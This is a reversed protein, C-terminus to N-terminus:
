RWVVGGDRHPVSRWERTAQTAGRRREAGHLLAGAQTMKRKLSHADVGIHAKMRCCLKGKKTQDIESVARRMISADVFILGRACGIRM